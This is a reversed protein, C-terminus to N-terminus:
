KDKKNMPRPISFVGGTHGYDDGGLRSIPMLQAVDVVGHSNLVNRNVHTAAVRLILMTSAVKGSDNKLEIEKDLTCEFAVAAEAIRPVSVRVSPLTTFGATTLEDVEPPFNGSTLNAAESMYSSIIHVVCEGTVSINHHTDSKKTENRRAVSSIM